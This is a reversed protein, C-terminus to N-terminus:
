IVNDVNLKYGFYLGISYYSINRFASTTLSAQNVWVETKTWVIRRKLVVRESGAASFM